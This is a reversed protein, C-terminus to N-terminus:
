PTWRAGLVRPIAALDEVTSIDSWGERVMPSVAELSTWGLEVLLWGGPRLV